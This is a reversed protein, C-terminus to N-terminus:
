VNSITVPITLTAGSKVGSINIYTNITTKNADSAYVNFLQSGITKTSVTFTCVAGGYGNLSPDRAVRYTARRYSDVKEPTAGSVRLFLDSMDVIFIDDQLEADVLNGSQLTQEISISASNKSTDSTTKLALSATSGRLNIRPLYTLTQNSLSIMRYKLAYNQNTQAEFVPTNKEIKEKGVTIGYKKIINYNVEDDGLAFMHISFSGDNKALSQRGLDTLVADLIINNTSNDLFGM